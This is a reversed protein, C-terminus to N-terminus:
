LTLLADSGVQRGGFEQMADVLCTWVYDASASDALLHWAPLPTDDRVVIVSLRVAQTQAVQLPAFRDTRFDIGCLKALMAPVHRGTLLFWFHSDARPVPYGRPPGEAGHGEPWAADLREVLGGRATAWPALLLVERPALRVALTDDGQRAARNPEPLALGQGGLWEPTGRGKFGTRPRLSLDVLALEALASADGDAPPATQLFSRRLATAM